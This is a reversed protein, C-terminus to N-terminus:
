YNMKFSTQQLLFHDNSEQLFHSWQVIRQPGQIGDKQDKELTLDATKRLKGGSEPQKGDEEAAKAALPPV